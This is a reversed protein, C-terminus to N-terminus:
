VQCTVLLFEVLFHWVMFLYYFGNRWNWVFVVCTMAEDEDERKNKKKMKEKKEREIEWDDDVCVKMM